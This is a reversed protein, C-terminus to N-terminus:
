DTNRLQEVISQKELNKFCIYPIFIAFAILIPTCIVLPMVNFQFTSTWDDAVMARIVVGVAFAGLLYSAILTFASYSLGEFILMKRLQPKTMGVSQLMAFEKKRSIIATVMSNIFNLVGVVAIIVSISIGMLTSARTQERYHLALTSKSTFTLSKDTNDRYSTLMTEAQEQSSDEVNFFMKRITNDPFMECFSDKPLYFSLFEVEEGNVGETIPTIDSVICMVAYEKGDLLVTDGVSYTPQTEKETEEAGLAAQVVIYDGSTFREKDFVGDVIRYEESFTDLILGNIGYLVAQCQGSNIMYNYAAALGPDTAEIYILRENANYYTQINSLASAGIEHTIVQSYLLGTATLGPLLEIEGTLEESVTTGYPNYQSFISAISSDMVEFDSIVKGGLYKDIDFSSNKANLATLLVLALTLSCIVTVTRKKNRGLNSFAMQYVGAGRKSKKVKRKSTTGTDTYRLAEMPSVKGAIKAPRLCSILATVYAFLASGIFIYPNVYVAAEEVTGTIILPVLITGLFYGLVLGIPIGFLCIRNVQGYIIKKIQKKSAGLTKLKGYFRIDAGVSIQFINYIILYGSAFVLLMGIVMPIIEKMINQNMTSDYAMNIGYSLSNLGTDALISQASQELNRDNAVDVHMQGIGFVQGNEHQAQQDIGACEKEVFSESVWAMSALAAHNGNWYGCLVFSSTTYDSSNLDQRWTLTITQGIEYPIGMKDLTITDLAIENESEPLEGVTPLSFASEAYYHDAYRIEVQRGTLESNEAVGLVISKGSATVSDHATIMDMESNTMSNFSLHSRYGAQLFNMEQMNTVMSQSLVFLSTFMLTTLMIACVAVLNRGKNAKFSRNTLKRIVNQKINMNEV